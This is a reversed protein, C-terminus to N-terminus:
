TCLLEHGVCTAYNEFGHFAETSITFQGDARETFVGFSEVPLCCPTPNVFEQFVYEILKWWELCHM